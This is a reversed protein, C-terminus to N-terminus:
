RLVNREPQVPMDPDSRRGFRLRLSPSRVAKRKIQHDDANKTPESMLGNMGLVLLLSLTTFNIRYMNTRNEYYLVGNVSIM